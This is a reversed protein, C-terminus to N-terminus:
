FALVVTVGSGNSGFNRVLYINFGPKLHFVAGRATNHGHFEHLFLISGCPRWFRYVNLKQQLTSVVPKRKSRCLTVSRKNRWPPPALLFLSNARGGGGGNVAKFRRSRGGERFRRSAVRKDRRVFGTVGGLRPTASLASLSWPATFFARVICLFCCRMYLDSFVDPNHFVMSFFFSIRSGLLCWLFLRFLRVCSSILTCM